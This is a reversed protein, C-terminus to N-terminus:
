ETSLTEAPPTPAPHQVRSELFRVVPLGLGLPVPALLQMLHDIDTQTLVIQM